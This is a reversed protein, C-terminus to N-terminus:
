SSRVVTSKIRVLEEFGAFFPSAQWAALRADAKRDWHLAGIPDERTLEIEAKIAQGTNIHPTAGLPPEGDDTLTPIRFVM